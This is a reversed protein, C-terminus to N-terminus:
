KYIICFFDVKGQVRYKPMLHLSLAHGHLESRQMSDMSSFEISNEMEQSSFDNLMLKASELQEKKEKKKKKKEEKKRMKELNM